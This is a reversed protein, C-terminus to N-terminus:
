VDAYLRALRQQIADRQAPAAAAFILEVLEGVDDGAIRTRACAYGVDVSILISLDAQGTAGDRWPTVSMLRGLPPPKARKAM